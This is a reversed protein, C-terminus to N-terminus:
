RGNPGGNKQTYRVATILENVAQTLTRLGEAQSANVDQLQKFDERPVANRPLILGKYFLGLFLLALALAAGPGLLDPNM